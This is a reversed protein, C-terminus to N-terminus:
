NKVEDMNTQLKFLRKKRLSDRLQLPTSATKKQIKKSAVEPSKAILTDVLAKDKQLRETVSSFIKEYNVVDSAYYHDNQAFELSDIKYKKYVYKAPTLDRDAFYKADTSYMANAVYLDYFINVMEDQDILNKPKEVASSNCNLLLM